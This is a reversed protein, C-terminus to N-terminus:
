KRPFDDLEDLKTLIQVLIEGTIGGHESAFCMCPIEKGNFECTPGYPYHKGPGTSAPIDISGAGNNRRVPPVRLDEGKAWIEPVKGESQQFIIFCLM